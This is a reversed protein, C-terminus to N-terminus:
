NAPEETIHNLNQEDLDSIDQYPKERNTWYAREVTRENTDQCERLAQKGGKEDIRQSDRRANGREHEENDKMQGFLAQGWEQENTEELKWTPSVLRLHATQGVPRIYNTDWRNKKVGCDKMISALHEKEAENMNKARVWMMHETDHLHMYTVSVDNRSLKPDICFKRNLLLRISQNSTSVYIKCVSLYLLQEASLDLRAIHEAGLTQPAAM